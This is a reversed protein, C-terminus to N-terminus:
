LVSDYLFKMVLNNCSHIRHLFVVRRADIETALPLYGM